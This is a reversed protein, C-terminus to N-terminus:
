PAGQQCYACYFPEGSVSLRCYTGDEVAPPQPTEICKRVTPIALDYVDDKGHWTTVLQGCLVNMFERVADEAVIQADGEDPETGLLNAALQIAFDRTCWCCVTGRAPGDYSADCRLWVAGAPLNAPQDDSVMFALDGLVDTVVAALDPQATSTERDSPEM